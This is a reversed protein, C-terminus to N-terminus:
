RITASAHDHNWAQRFRAAVIHGSFYWFLYSIPNLGINNQYVTTVILIAAVGSWGQALAGHLDQSKALSISDRLVFFLFVYSMIVGLLGLEWLTLSLDTQGAGYHVNYYAYKGSFKAGLYSDTVNGIGVGVLLRTWDASLVKWAVVIGDIRSARQKETPRGTVIRPTERDIGKLNKSDAAGGYLYNELAAPDTLYRFIGGGQTNSYLGQYLGIFLVFILGGVLAFPILVRLNAAQGPMTIFPMAIAIPLLLVTVKTEDIGTPIIYTLLLAAAVAISLRQRLYMGVVVAIFGVLMVTLVGSTGLTGRVVDGTGWGAYLVFRQLIAVPLQIIGLVALVQLQRRLQDESYQYVVPLLFFPLYKLYTRAGIFITGPQMENIITSSTILLGTFGFLLLYKGAIMLRKQYAGHLVVLVVALGSLMEPLWSVQRPVLGEEALFDLTFTSFFILYPLLTM